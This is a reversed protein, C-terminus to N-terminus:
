LRKKLKLNYLSTKNIYKKRNEQNKFNNKVKRCMKRIKIEKLIYECREAHISAGGSALLELLNECVEKENM